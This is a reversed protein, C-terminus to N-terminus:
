LTRGYLKNFYTPNTRGVEDICRVIESAIRMLGVRGFHLVHDYPQNIMREDYTLIESLDLRLVPLSYHEGLSTVQSTFNTIVDRNQTWPSTCLFISAESNAELIMEIIKCYYGLMSDESSDINGNLGGNTGLFIIFADYNNWNIQEETFQSSYEEYWTKTTRGSLGLNQVDADIIKALFSPYCYDKYTGYVIGDKDGYYGQTISDGICCVKRFIASYPVDNRMSAGSEAINNDIDLNKIAVKGHKVTEDYPSNICVVFNQPSKFNLVITDAGSPVTVEYYQNDVLTQRYKLASVFAGNLQLIGNQEDLNADEYKWRVVDGELVDFSTNKYATNNVLIGQNSYYGPSFTEGDFANGSVFMNRITEVKNELISVDNILDLKPISIKNYPANARYETNAVVVFNSPTKMNIGAKNSGAPVVVEYYGDKKTQTYKFAKTFTSGNFFVGNQEELSSDEYTWRLIDGENVDILCHKYTDSTAIAGANNYFGSSYSVGDFLNGTLIEKQLGSLRNTELKLESVDNYINANSMEGSLAILAMLAIKYCVVVYGDSQATYVYNEKVSSRSVVKVSISTGDSNCTSIMAVGNSEGAAYLVVSQGKKILIPTSYCFAAHTTISGNPAIFKGTVVEPNIIEYDTLETLDEKIKTNESNLRDRLTTYVTGDAGVRAQGIETDATGTGATQAIQDIQAQLGSVATNVDSTNAKGSLVANIAAIMADTAFHSIADALNDFGDVFVDIAEVVPFNLNNKPKITDIVHVAM